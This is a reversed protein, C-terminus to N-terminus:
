PQSRTQPKATRWAPPQLHPMVDEGAAWARRAITWRIRAYGVELVDELDDVWWDAPDFAALEPPPEGFRARTRRRSM